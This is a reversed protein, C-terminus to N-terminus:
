ELLSLSFSLFVLARNYMKTVIVTYCLGVFILHNITISNHTPLVEDECLLVITLGLLLEQIVKCTAEHWLLRVHMLNIKFQMGSFCM